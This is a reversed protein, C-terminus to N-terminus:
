SQVLGKFNKFLKQLKSDIHGSNGLVVDEFTPNKIKGGTYVSVVFIVKKLRKFVAESCWFYGGALTMVEFQTDASMEKFILARLM